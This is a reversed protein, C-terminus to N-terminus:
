TLDFSLYPHTPLFTFDCTLSCLCVKLEGILSTRADGNYKIPEKIKIYHVRAEDNAEAEENARNSKLYNVFLM